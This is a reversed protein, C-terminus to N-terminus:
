ELEGDTKATTEIKVKLFTHSGLTVYLTGEGKTAEKLYNGMDFGVASIYRMKEGLRSSGYVHIYATNINAVITNGTGPAVKIGVAGTAPDFSTLALTPAAYTLNLIGDGDISFAPAVGMDSILAVSIDGPGVAKIRPGNRFKDRIAANAPDAMDLRGIAFAAYDRIQAVADAGLTESECIIPVEGSLALTAYYTVVGGNTVSSYEAEAGELAFALGPTTTSLLPYTGGTWGYPPAKVPIVAGETVVAGSVAIPVAQGADALIADGAALTLSGLSTGACIAQADDLRSVQASAAMVRIMGNSTSVPNGATVDLVGTREGLQVDTVAIDSYLGATGDRVVFTVLAISGSGEVVNADPSGFIAVSLTGNTDIATFDDAMASKLSGAEAKTVVLVQPDYALTAGAYSLGAASDLAVPITVTAGANAVYTGVSIQYAGATAALGTALAFAYVSAKM